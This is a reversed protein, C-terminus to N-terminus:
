AVEILRVENEPVSLGLCGKVVVLLCLDAVVSFILRQFQGKNGPVVSLSEFCDTPEFGLKWPYAINRQREVRHYCVIQRLASKRKPVFKRLRIIRSEACLPNAILYSERRNGGSAVGHRV